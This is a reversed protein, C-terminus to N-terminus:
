CKTTNIIGIFYRRKTSNTYSAGRKRQRLFLNKARKEM